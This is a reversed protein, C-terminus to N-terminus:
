CLALLMRNQLLQICAHPIKIYTDLLLGVIHEVKSMATNVAPHAVIM